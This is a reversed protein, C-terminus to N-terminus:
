RASAPPPSWPAGPGAASPQPPSLAAELAVALLHQPTKSDALRELVPDAHQAYRVELPGYTADTGAGDFVLVLLMAGTLKIHLTNAIGPLGARRRDRELAFAIRNDQDARGGAPQEGEGDLM